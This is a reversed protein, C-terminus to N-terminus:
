KDCNLCTFREVLDHTNTVEFMRAVMPTDCNPCVPDNNLIESLKDLDAPDAESEHNNYQDDLTYRIADKYGECKDWTSCYFDMAKELREINEDDNSVDDLLKEIDQRTTM